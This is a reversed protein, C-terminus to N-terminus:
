QRPRTKAEIISALTSYRLSLPHYLFVNLATRITLFSEISRKQDGKKWQLQFGESGDDLHTNREGCHKESGQAKRGRAIGQLNEHTVVITETAAVQTFQVFQKHIRTMLTYVAHVIRIILRSVVDTRMTAGACCCDPLPPVTMQGSAAFRVIGECYSMTGAPEGDTPRSGSSSFMQYKSPVTLCRRVERREWAWVLLGCLGCCASEGGEVEDQGPIVRRPLM